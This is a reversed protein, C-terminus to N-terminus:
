LIRPTNQATLSTGLVKGRKAKRLIVCLFICKVVDVEHTFGMKL